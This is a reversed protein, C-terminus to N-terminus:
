EARQPTVELRLLDAPGDLVANLPKDVNAVHLLISAADAYSERCSAVKSPHPCPKDFSLSYM